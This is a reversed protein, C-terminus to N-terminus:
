KYLCLNGNAKLKDFLHSGPALTNVTGGKSHLYGAVGIMTANDGTFKQDPLYLSILDRSKSIWDRLRNSITKNAIVGGGVLLSKAACMQIAAATKKILVETVAQEFEYAIEIKEEQTLEERKNEEKIRKVLYLVATKLGSFSFDLDGSHLMPRPLIYTKPQKTELNNPKFQSALKSIEPGGPYPLGLIRAVKDFAEGVADDRTNGVIEFNNMSQMLVLQTHGGSILLAIAPFELTQLEYEIKSKNNKLKSNLKLMASVIHGHMHDTAVISINWKAALKKAFNIGEWLAPELGPGCTVTILDPALQYTNPEPNPSFSNPFLKELMIPLNIIHERKALMPVVGGWEKHVTVQSAVDHALLNFKVSTLDGTGRPKVETLNAELLSMATEDCSTEIALIRM